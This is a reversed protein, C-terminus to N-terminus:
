GTFVFESFKNNEIKYTGWNIGRQEGRTTFRLTGFGTETESLRIIDSVEKPKKHTSKGIARLLLVTSWFSTELYAYSANSTIDEYQRLLRQSFDNHEADDRKSFGAVVLNEHNNDSLKIFDDIIADDGVFITADIGAERIQKVLLATLEHVGCLVFCTRQISQTRKVKRLLEDSIRDTDEETLQVVTKNSTLFTEIQQSLATGYANDQAVIIVQTPRYENDIIESLYRAQTEDTACVRFITGDLRTALDPHSTGPALFCIGNKQYIHSAPVSASASLHGIVYKIGRSIFSEAVKLSIAGDRGDNQWVYDIPQNLIGVERSYKTALSVGLLLENTHKGNNATIGVKLEATPDSVNYLQDLHLHEADEVFPVIM